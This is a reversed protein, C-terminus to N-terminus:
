GVIFKFGVDEEGCFIELLQQHAAANRHVFRGEHGGYHDVFFVFVAEHKEWPFRALADQHARHAIEDFVAEQEVAKHLQM